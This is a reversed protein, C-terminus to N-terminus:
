ACNILIVTLFKWMVYIWQSIANQGIRFSWQISWLRITELLVSESSSTTGKKARWVNSSEENDGYLIFIVTQPKKEWQYEHICARKGTDRQTHLTCSPAATTATTWSRTVGMSSNGASQAITRPVLSTRLVCPSVWSSHPSAPPKPFSSSTLSSVNHHPLFVRDVSFRSRSLSTVATPALLPLFVYLQTNGVLLGLLFHRHSFSLHISSFARPYSSSFSFSIGTYALTRSLVRGLHACCWVRLNEDWLAQVPTIRTLLYPLPEDHPLFTVRPPINLNGQEGWDNMWVFLNHTLTM